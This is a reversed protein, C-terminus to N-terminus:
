LRVLMKRFGVVLWVRERKIDLELGAMPVARREDIVDQLWVVAAEPSKGVITGCVYVCQKPSVRLGIGRGVAMEKKVIEEKVEKKIEKDEKEVSNTKEEAKVKEEIKTKEETM